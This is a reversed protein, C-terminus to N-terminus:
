KFQIVDAKDSGGANLHLIIGDAKPYEKRAKKLIKDRIVNYQPNFMGGMTNSMTGLYKYEAVPKSDTFVYFGQIQEVDATSKGVEYNSSRMSLAFLSLLALILFNKM